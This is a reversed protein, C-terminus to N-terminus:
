YTRNGMRVIQPHFLDSEKSHGSYVQSPRLM